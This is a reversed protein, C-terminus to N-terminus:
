VKASFPDVISALHSCPSPVKATALGGDLKGSVWRAVELISTVVSASPPKYAIKGSKFERGCDALLGLIMSHQDPSGLQLVFAEVFAAHNAVGLTEEHQGVFARMECPEIECRLAREKLETAAYKRKVRSASSM